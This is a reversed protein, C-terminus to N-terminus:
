CRALLTLAFAVFSAKPVVYVPEPSPGSWPEVELAAAQHGTAESLLGQFRQAAQALPRM